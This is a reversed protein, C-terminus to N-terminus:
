VHEKDPPYWGDPVAPKKGNDYVAGAAHWPTVVAHQSQMDALAIARHMGVPRPTIRVWKHEPWELLGQAPGDRTIRKRGHYHIAVEFM